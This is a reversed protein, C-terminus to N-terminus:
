YFGGNLLVLEVNIRELEQIALRVILAFCEKIDRLVHDKYMM